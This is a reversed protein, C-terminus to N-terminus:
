LNCILFTESDYCGLKLQAGYSPDRKVHWNTPGNYAISFHGMYIIM